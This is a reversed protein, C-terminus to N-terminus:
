KVVTYSLTQTASPASGQSATVKVEYSGVQAPAGVVARWVGTDQILKAPVSAL